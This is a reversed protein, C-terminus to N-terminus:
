QKRGWSFIHLLIGGFRWGFPSWPTSFIEGFARTEPSKYDLFRSDKCGYSTRIPIHKHDYCYRYYHKYYRNAVTNYIIVVTASAQLQVHLGTQLNSQISQAEEM